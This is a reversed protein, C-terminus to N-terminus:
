VGNLKTHSQKLNMFYLYVAKNILQKIQIIYLYYAFRKSSVCLKSYFNNVRIGIAVSINSEVIPRPLNNMLSLSFM